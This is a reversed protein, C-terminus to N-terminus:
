FLLPSKMPRYLVSSYFGAAQMLLITREIIWLAESAHQWVHSVACYSVGVDQLWALLACHVCSHRVTGILCFKHCNKKNMCLVTLNQICTATGANTDECNLPNQISSFAFSNYCWLIQVSPFIMWMLGSEVSFIAAWTAPKKWHPEIILPKKLVMCKAKHLLGINILIQM